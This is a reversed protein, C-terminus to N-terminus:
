RQPDHHAHSVESAPGFGADNRTGMSVGTGPAPLTTPRAGAGAVVAAVAAPAALEEAAGLESAAALEEAAWRAAHREAWPVSVWGRVMSRLADWHTLAMLIHGAVVAVVIFALVEHVFTAGTRWSVPFLGFWHMIVGTGLMVVIAGGVFIANLKQGPNFKDLPVSREGGLSRLWRVEGATWRNIRRVDSRMRAGWPGVLSVLIPVPLAVGTWVHIEEILLHRGIVRELSGFYLPLATLILILFLIANAWHAARQVRDFRLLRLPAGEAARM